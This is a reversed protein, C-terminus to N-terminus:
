HFTWSVYDIQYASKFFLGQIMNIKIEKKEPLTEPVIDIAGSACQIVHKIATVDIKWIGSLFRIYRSQISTAFIIWVM